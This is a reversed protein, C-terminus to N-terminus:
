PGGAESDAGADGTMGARVMCSQLFDPRTPDGELSFWWTVTAIDGPTVPQARASTPNDFKHSVALTVSHCGPPVNTFTYDEVKTSDRPVGLHGPAIDVNGGLYLPPADASTSRFEAVVVAQLPPSQLDESVVVFELVPPPLYRGSNPPSNPEAKIPVIQYPVPSVNTLFPPTREPKTFDPSSTIL